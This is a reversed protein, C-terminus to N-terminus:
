RPVTPVRDARGLLTHAWRPCTPFGRFLLAIVVGIAPEAAVGAWVYPWLVPGTTVLGIAGWAAGALVGLRVQRGTPRRM